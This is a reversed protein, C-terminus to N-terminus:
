ERLTEDELIEATLEGFCLGTQSILPSYDLLTILPPKPYPSLFAKQEFSQTLTLVALGPFFCSHRSFFM